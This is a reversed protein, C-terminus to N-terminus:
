QKGASCSDAVKTISTVALTRSGGAGANASAGGTSASASGTTGASGATNGSANSDPTHTEASADAGATGTVEVQKNVNASLQSEDGTLQYTMGTADTLMYNGSSGSLCGEIKNGGSNTNAQDSTSTSPTQTTSSGSQPTDQAIALATCLLLTAAFLIANKMALDGKLLDNETLVWQALRLNCIKGPFM